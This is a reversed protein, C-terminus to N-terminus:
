SRSKLEDVEEKLEKIAEILLPVLKEYMVAQTGDDRTTTVGPLELATIEQAIVGTDDNGQKDDTSKENWTFTNGSISSVKALANKIPSINDKLRRDSGRFATIDGKVRVAGDSARVQLSNAVGSADNVRLYESASAGSSFVIDMWLTLAEDSVLITEATGGGGAGWVVSAGDGGSTLVQGPTGYNAGAIGIEGERGIRLRENSFGNTGNFTYFKISSFNAGATRDMQIRADADSGTSKFDIFPGATDSTRKIEVGGDETIDVLDAGGSKTCRIYNGTKILTGSGTKDYELNSAAALFTDDNFLVQKDSGPVSFNADGTATIETGSIALGNGVTLYTLKGPDDDWFVIRDAGPDDASLTSDTLDLVDTVTSDLLLGGAASGTITLQTASNRTVTVGGSGTITIDDNTTGDGLRLAPNADTGGTQEVTLDYTKGANSNASITFGSETVSDLTIGAGATLLVDDDTAGDNLRLNVNTVDAVSTLTYTKGGVDEGSVTKIILATGNFGDTANGVVKLGNMGFISVSDHDSGNKLLRIGSTGNGTGYVPITYDNGGSAADITLGTASNRTVTVNSGGTITIDDNTSGDTLRLAPDADTGGTQEVSLDYTKVGSSSGVEVWAGDNKIKIPM